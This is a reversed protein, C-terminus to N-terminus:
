NPSMDLYLNGTAWEEDINMILAGILRLASEDNPFTGVAKVRRKIERNVREVGNTTYIKRHHKSPFALFNCASDEYRRLVDAAATLNANDLERIATQYADESQNIRLMIDAADSAKRRSVSGLAARKLHVICMQWSCGLFKKEVAAQIGKHGDSVVMKVGSLGREILEDFFMNWFSESESMTIKLGLIERYGDSNVGYAVFVAKNIYRGGNRIKVYSADVFVYPIDRSIPRSLFFQIEADLEKAIRSVASSSLDTIGMKEVLKLVKTTSIGLVYSERIVNGFAKEVRSYREFVQTEFVSNRLQPKKLVLKGEMTTLTRNKYGNRYGKTPDGTEKVLLEAQARIEEEMIQNLLKTKMVAYLATLGVGDLQAESALRQIMEENLEM